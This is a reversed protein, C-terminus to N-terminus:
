KLKNYCDNCFLFKNDNDVWCKDGADITNGCKDCHEHDWADKELKFLKEDYSEFTNAIKVLYGGNQPFWKEGDAEDFVKQVEPSPKQGEPIFVTLADFKPLTIQKFKDATLSTLENQNEEPNYSM